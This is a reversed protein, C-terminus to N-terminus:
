KNERPTKTKLLSFLASTSMTSVPYQGLIHKRVSTPGWNYGCISLYWRKLSDTISSFHQNKLLHLYAAGLEINIGPAYLYEPRIVWDNGYLYRYAERGAHRPIVQMLGMAGAHSVAM